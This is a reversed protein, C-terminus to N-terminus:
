LHQGDSFSWSVITHAILPAGWYIFFIDLGDLKALDYTREEWREDFEDVSRYVFNRVNSVIVRRGFHRATALRAVEPRWDRANSPQLRYWWVFASAAALLAASAAVLATEM